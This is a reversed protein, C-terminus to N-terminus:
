KRAKGNIAYIRARRVVGIYLEYDCELDYHQHVECDLACQARLICPAGTILTECEISDFADAPRETHNEFRRVLLRDTDDVRCLAFAHSDRIVPEIPHGRRLAVSVLPPEVSCQQVWRTVAGARDKGHRATMIFPASPAAELAQAIARLESLPLNEFFNEAM